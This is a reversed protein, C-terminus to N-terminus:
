DISLIYHGRPRIRLVLACLASALRALPDDVSGRGQVLLLAHARRGQLRDGGAGVDGAASDEVVEAPGAPEEVRHGLPDEEVELGRVLRDEVAHRGSRCPKAGVNNGHDFEEPAAGAPPGHEHALHLPGLQLRALRGIVVLHRAQLRDGEAIEGVVVVHGDHDSRQDV